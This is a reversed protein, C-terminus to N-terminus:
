LGGNAAMVSMVEDAVPLQQQQQANQAMAQQGQVNGSMAKAKVADAYASAVAWKPRLDNPDNYLSLLEEPRLQKLSKTYAIPNKGQSFPMASFPIAQGPMAMQGTNQGPRQANQILTQLGAM